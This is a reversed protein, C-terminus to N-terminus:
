SPALVRLLYRLEDDVQADDDVTERIEARLADGFRRRARSLAARFADDSLKAGAPGERPPADSTLFARVDQFVEEQGRASYDSKLRELARETVRLAWQREFAAEPSAEHDTPDLALAREERHADISEHPTRAGRRLSLDHARANLLFHRASTLLYARFRGRSPDARAFAGRELLGLFFAQTLDASEEPPYGRRRIYAYVPRWYIQCLEALAGKARLDDGASAAILTWRTTKFPDAM